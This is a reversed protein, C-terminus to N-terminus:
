KRKIGLWWLIGIILGMLGVFMWIIGKASVKSEKERSKISEESREDQRVAVQKEKVSEQKRSGEKAADRQDTVVEKVTTEERSKPTEVEITLTKNLSDLIALITNGEDDTIRNEGTKVDPIVVRTKGGKEIVTKTERETVVKGKDTEKISDIVRGRDSDVVVCDRKVVEERRESHRNSSTNKFLGCGTLLLTSVLLIYLKM